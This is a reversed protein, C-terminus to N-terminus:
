SLYELLKPHSASFAYWDRGAVMAPRVNEEWDELQNKETEAQGRDIEAAAVEPHVWLKQGDMEIQVWKGSDGIAGPGQEEYAAAVEPAVWLDRGNVTIKM